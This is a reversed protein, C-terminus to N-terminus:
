RTAPEYRLGRDDPVLQAGPLDFGSVEHGIHAYRFPAAEFVARGVSALWDDIPRRWALSGDSDGFPYAFVRAEVRALSELPFGFDLWDEADAGEGRILHIVCAVDAPAFPPRQTDM